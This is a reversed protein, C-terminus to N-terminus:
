GGALNRLAPLRGRYTIRVFSFFFSPYFKTGKDDQSHFVPKVVVVNVRNVPTLSHWWGRYRGALLWDLCRRWCGWAFLFRFLLVFTQEFVGGPHIREAALM